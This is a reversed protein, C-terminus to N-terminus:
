SNSCRTWHPYGSSYWRCEMGRIPPCATVPPGFNLEKAV